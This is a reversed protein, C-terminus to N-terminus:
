REASGAKPRRLSHAFATLVGLDSREIVLLARWSFGPERAFRLLFLVAVVLYACSSAAAAGRAGFAPIWWANLGLNVLLGIGSCVANVRPRGVQQMFYLSIPLALAACAVGPLLLLLPPWSQRFAAGFVLRILGPSVLLLVTAAASVTVLALRVARETLRRSGAPERSSVHPTLALVLARPLHWLLEALLVAISYLGLAAAGGWYGLLFADARLLLIWLLNAIYAEMGFRLSDRACARGGRWSPPALRRIWLLTLLPGVAQAAIWVSGATVRDARGLLVLAIVAAFWALPTAIQLANFLALRRLGILIGNLNMQLLVLLTVAWLPPLFQRPFGIREGIAPVAISLVPLCLLGVALGISLQTAAITGPPHTRKGLQQVAAAHLGLGALSATVSIVTGLFSLLGKGEPGLLRAILVNNVVGIALAVGQALLTRATDRAISM